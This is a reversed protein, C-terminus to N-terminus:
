HPSAGLAARMAGTARYFVDAEQMRLGRHDAAAQYARTAQQMSAM